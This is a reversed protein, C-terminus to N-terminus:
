FTLGTKVRVLSRGRQDGLEVTISTAPNMIAVWFGVGSGTHWGGPSEGDVYVRGADAFGYIGVDLPVVLPFRVVPIQLETTGAVSADGAYRQRDLRRVSGRGGLFAAEHFPFDGFLKRGSGRVLLIPHLPIPFTYYVAASGAVAGFGSEVDWVAPYWTGSLDLLVGRHPDKVQDRADHSLGLRLGAQGFNGFGYPRSASIIRGAVSDTTSYQILPGFTLDSRSGLSLAIAPHLQWQKQRVEASTFSANPTTNGFGYFSTVEIESMRARAMFHLASEEQRKDANATFRFGNVHTAYEGAGDLRLSFPQHRFALRESRLGLRFVFGLDGDISLGALPIMRKGYDRGQPVLKGDLHIWPRRNFITDPGYQVGSVTGRDYLRAPDVRGGVRSSDVLRNSGNGGIVRVVISQAAAGTVSASDDGGHLYLRIERTELPQFRRRFYPAGSGAQLQVDVSGDAHRTVRARDASDTAHIDPYGALYRYFVDAQAPFSDRRAKLKAALDPQRAQYEPPMARVAADIVPDTIRHKLDAAISDWVPKELGSLLRRDMERSNRTLAQVSPYTAKFPILNPSRRTIGGYQIFVKDRDRPIPVWSPSSELRAWKWNGPHRDWDNLFMDMLRVKLLARTDIRLGPDKDLKPRLDETEIVATAGAFGPADEPKSPYAEIMGLRGAFEERFEGLLSDDPLVSLLPTVHLVGAAQLLPAAVVAGGPHHASVQDRAIGEVVTGALGKPLPIKDKDVMRFVYDSGDPTVFRLSKTQNGSGTKTPRLGGAYTRLDLVPVRIPAAWLDRYTDGLLFRRLWGGQYRPGAAIRVTDSGVPTAPPKQASAPHALLALLMAGASVPARFSGPAGAM